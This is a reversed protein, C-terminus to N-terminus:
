ILLFSENVLSESRPNRLVVFLSGQKKRDRKDQYITFYSCKARLSFSSLILEGAGVWGGMRLDAFVLDETLRSIACLYQIYTYTKCPEGRKWKVFSKSYLILFVRSAKSCKKKKSIKTLDKCHKKKGRIQSIRYQLLKIVWSGNKLHTKSISHDYLLCQETGAM